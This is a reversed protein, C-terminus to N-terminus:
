PSAGKKLLRALMVMVLWDPPSGEIWREKDEEDADVAAVLEIRDEVTWDEPWSWDNCGHNGYEDSAKELFAAALDLIKQNM